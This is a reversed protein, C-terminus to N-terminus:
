KVLLIVLNTKMFIWYTQEVYEDKRTGQRAAHDISNYISAYISIFFHYGISVIKVNNHKFFVVYGAIYQLFIKFRDHSKLIYNAYLIYKLPPPLILELNGSRNTDRSNINM